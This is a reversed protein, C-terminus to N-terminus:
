RLEIRGRPTSITAILAARPGRQVHLDLGLRSLTKQIQEADPHEARVGILSAGQASTTAPHPTTGWDIFFPVIGNAVVTRPDTYRWSLMVGDVRRRSGAIVEGLKVGGRAADGALRELDTGKAAWTVLRPEKLDDIGFQRPQPPTPQDPDPGIIELYAGPGLSLLANRTGRGPHQGGPTPRIGSLKEIREIGVELDPTAYVLHDVTAVLGRSVSSGDLLQLLASSVAAPKERPLFHGAGAVVQRAVRSTFSAREAPTDGGPAGLGDDAGFLVISPVTITPRQALAREMEAFRPEGPANGNRHRYSHIVCDVFDPNDFSAATREYTDDTFRWTPSWDKWLLRCIGRRNRELGVRGRETNFYWQYWLAREREPAAPQPPALTDQITYGGILVAARVRDPHLAAAICAARNGWDYGAVAFRTLGLADALDILDQGIAAQQAMRPASSERFRTPGYGRLYPVIVRHGKGALPAAVEDWARVDDPFGHLLIIPFGQSDGSEEIAINLVPTQVVRIRPATRPQAWGDRTAAVGGALAGAALGAKLFNRRSHLM